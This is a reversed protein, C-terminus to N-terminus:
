QAAVGFDGKLSRWVSHIHNAPNGAPDSQINVLELVFTPGQVRYYHGVGPKTSGSWAFYIRDPNAAKLDALRAAGLEPALNACYAELLSWLTKKQADNLDTAAIGEPATHPPQPLGAARYDKPAEKAILAKKLGAEDLSNVLDFALQEEDALTRTGVEPGGPVFISVTAPNAGMFSPTDSVVQGDRIVFNLSYHHGEFSYGWTGTAAPKGFITLFYREPDRLPSGKLNKEGELLNTELSMIREATQYGVDSLSAKVLALCLKRQDATIDRYQLGKRQPKPINHWDLRAPDDFRMTVKALTAADLGVLFKEAAATIAAAVKATSPVATSPVAPSASEPAAAQALTLLLSWAYCSLALRKM